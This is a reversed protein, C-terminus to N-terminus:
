IFSDKNINKLGLTLQEKILEHLREFDEKAGEIFKIAMGPPINKEENQLGCHYIVTGHFTLTKEKVQLTAILRTGIPLPEPTVVFAGRESISETYHSTERDGMSLSIRGSHPTRLYHRKSESDGFLVEELLQHLRKIDLPKPLFDYAGSKKLTEATKPSTDTSMAIVPIKHMSPNGKLYNLTDLGGLYPMVIDMLILDPMQINVLKILELGNEAPITNFGMKYLLGCLQILFLQDDDTVIIRKKRFNM